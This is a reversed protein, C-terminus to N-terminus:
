SGLWSEAYANLNPSRVPLRIPAIKESKLIEDFKATYKTDRDHLLFSTTEEREQLHMSFNRAHQGVWSAEPHETCGAYYVRRFGVHIFFLFHLDGSLALWVTCFWTTMGAVSVDTSDTNEMM